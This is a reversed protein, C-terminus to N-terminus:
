LNAFDHAITTQQEITHKMGTATVLKKLGRSSLTTKAKANHLLASTNAPDEAFETMKKQLFLTKLCSAFFIM